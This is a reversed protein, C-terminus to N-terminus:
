RLGIREKLATRSAALMADSRAKDGETRALAMAGVLEAMVSAALTDADAKGMAELFGALAARLHAAGQNFRGRAAEPLRAMEGSLAPLPCGRERADRHASSLYFDVYAALAEAPPRGETEAAFRSYPGEFMKGVAEAVLADKSPFHAYFGGHTLGADKMVSAVGIREPGDKRIAKAAANLIRERAKAKHESDYRM